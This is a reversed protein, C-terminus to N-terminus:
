HQGGLKRDMKYTKRCKKGASGPKCVNFVLTNVTTSVCGNKMHSSRECAAKGGIVRINHSTAALAREYRHHAFVIRGCHATDLVAIGKGNGGGVCKFSTNVGAEGSSPGRVSCYHANPGLEWTGCEKPMKVNLYTPGASASAVYFMSILLFSITSIISKYKM